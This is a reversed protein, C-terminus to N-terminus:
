KGIDLNMIMFGMFDTIAVGEMANTKKNMYGAMGVLTGTGQGIHLAAGTESISKGDFGNKTGKATIGLQGTTFTYQYVSEDAVNGNPDKAVSILDAQFLVSGEPGKSKAKVKIKKADIQGVVTGGTGFKTKIDKKLTLTATYGEGAGLLKQTLKFGSAPILIKGKSDVMMTFGGSLEGGMELGPGKDQSIIGTTGGSVAVKYTGPEQPGPPPGEIDLVWTAINMTDVFGPPIGAGGPVEDNMYGAVGVLTMSGHEALVISKGEGSYSKGELGSGKTKQAVFQVKGTTLTMTSDTASSEEGAASTVQHTQLTFTVVGPDKVGKVKTKLKKADLIAQVNGGKGIQGKVDKTLTMTAVYGTVAGSVMESTVKFTKAPIVFKGKADVLMQFGGGYEQTVEMAATDNMSFASEGHSKESNVTINYTKYKAAGDAGSAMGVLGGAALVLALLIPLMMRGKKLLRTMM